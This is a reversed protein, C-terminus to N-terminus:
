PKPFDFRMSFYGSNRLKYNPNTLLDLNKHATIDTTAFNIEIGVPPNSITKNGVHPMISNPQEANNTALLVFGTEGAENFLPTGRVSNKLEKLINTSLLQANDKSPSPFSGTKLINEYTWKSPFFSRMLNGNEKDFFYEIYCVDGINEGGDYTQYDLPKLSLFRFYPTEANTIINPWLNIDKPLVINDIDQMLLLAGSRGETDVEIKGQTVRWTTLSTSLISLIVAMVISLIAASVLVEILTFGNNSSKM